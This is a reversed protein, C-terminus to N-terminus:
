LGLHAAREGYLWLLHWELEDGPIVGLWCLTAEGPGDRLGLELQELPLRELWLGVGPWLLVGM